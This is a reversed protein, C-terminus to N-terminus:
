KLQFRIPIIMWVYVPQGHSTIASFRWREVAAAASADFLPISKLIKVQRVRGDPGILAKLVVVGEKGQKRAEVPYVPDSFKVLTPQNDLQSSSVVGEGSGTGQGQGGTGGPQGATGTATTGTTQETVQEAAHQAATQKDPLTMKATHRQVPHPVRVPARQVPLGNGGSSGLNITITSLSVRPVFIQFFFVGLLLLLHAGLSGALFYTFRKDISGLPRSAQIM